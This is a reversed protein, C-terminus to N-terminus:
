RFVVTVVEDGPRPWPGDSVERELTMSASPCALVRGPAVARYSEVVIGDDGVFAIDLPYAMGFTHVSSCAEFAMANDREGPHTGLLGKLRDGFSRARRFQLVTGDEPMFVVGKDM